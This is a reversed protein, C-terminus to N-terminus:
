QEANVGDLVASSLVDLGMDDEQRVAKAQAKRRKMEEAIVAHEPPEPPPTVVGEAGDRSDMVTVGDEGDTEAPSVWCNEAFPLKLSLEDASIVLRTAQDDAVELTAAM